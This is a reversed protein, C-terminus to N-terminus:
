PVRLRRTAVGVRQCATIAVIGAFAWAIVAAAGPLLCFLSHAVVTETGEALGASFHISREDGGAAARREVLSSFALLTTGNVYYAALLAACALRAEPLAVAVGLVFGGYVTFDAVIDFFGGRDTEARARAMPGDLGDLLRNGLWLVLALPWFAAAAAVCAGIGLGFGAATVANPAVGVAALRRAAAGLVPQLGARVPRDLM